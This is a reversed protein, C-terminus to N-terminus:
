KHKPFTKGFMPAGSKSPEETAVATPRRPPTINPTDRWDYSYISMIHSYIRM